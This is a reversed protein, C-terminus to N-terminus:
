TCSKCVPMIQISRRPPKDCPDCRKGNRVSFNLGTSGIITGRPRFYTAALVFCKLLEMLVGGSLTTNQSHRALM